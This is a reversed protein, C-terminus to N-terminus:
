YRPTDIKGMLIGTQNMLGHDRPNRVVKTRKRLMKAGRKPWIYYYSKWPGRPTGPISRVGKFVARPVALDYRPVNSHHFGTNLFRM